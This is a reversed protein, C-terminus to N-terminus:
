LNLFLERAATSQPILLILLGRLLGTLLSLVGSSAPTSVPHESSPHTGLINKHIGEHWNPYQCHPLPLLTPQIRTQPKPEEQIDLPYITKPSLHYDLKACASNLSVLPHRHLFLFHSFAQGLRPRRTQLRKPSISAFSSVSPESDDMDTSAWSAPPSTLPPPNDLAFKWGSHRQKKHSDRHLVGVGLNGQAVLCVNQSSLLSRHRPIIM